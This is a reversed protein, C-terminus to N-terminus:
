GVHAGADVPGATGSLRAVLKGAEWLLLLALAPV